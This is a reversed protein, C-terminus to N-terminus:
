ISLPPNDHNLTLTTCKSIVPKTIKREVQRNLCVKITILQTMISKKSVNEQSFFYFCTKVLKYWCNM